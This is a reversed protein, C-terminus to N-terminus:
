VCATWNRQQVDSNEWRHCILTTHQLSSSTTVGYAQCVKYVTRFAHKILMNQQHSNDLRSQKQCIRLWLSGSWSLFRIQQTANGTSQVGPQVLDAHSRIQNHDLPRIDSGTVNRWTVHNRNTSTDQATFAESLVYLSARHIAYIVSM